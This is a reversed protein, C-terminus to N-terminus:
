KFWGSVKSWLNGLDFKMVLYVGGVVLLLMMPLDPVFIGVGLGVGAAMIGPIRDLWDAFARAKASLASLSFM